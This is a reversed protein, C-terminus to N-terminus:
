EDRLSNRYCMIFDIVNFYQEVRNDDNFTYEREKLLGDVFHIAVRISDCRRMDIARVIDVFQYKTLAIHYDSYRSNFVSVKVSISSVQYKEM